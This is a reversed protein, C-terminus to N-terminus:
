NEHVQVKDLMEALDVAPVPPSFLYGQGYRYGLQKLMDCQPTTEIGEAIVMVDLSKGITIIAELLDEGNPAEQAQNVFSKDVKLIRPRLLTFYSLSSYGTGFDDIALAIGIERLRTSIRVASDIDRIAAGETIELVLRGPEFGYTELTETIRKFLQPDHFQRPSLNVTVCPQQDQNTIKRWSAAECVAKRLAFYGLEFILDSKEALPIFVDPSVSGQGPRDWRMLAEFGQIAGTDIDVIPQYHMSIADSDISQRLDQVLEIRRTARNHMDPHFLAYSNKGQRKAEYMATDANRLLDDCGERGICTAVGISATVHITTLSDESVLFPKDFLDNIRAAIEEVEDPGSPGECLYVFEDGGLRCLTDGSRTVHELRQSVEILLADGMQHGLTDNVDKFDDLDILLVAIWANERKTKLLVQDLRDEFLLRNALGTLSDHLAQHSLKAVLSREETIDRLSNVFYQPEGLENRALSKSVEAWVTRGDKHRYRKTYVIRSEEGALIRTAVNESIGRDPSPTFNASFQGVLEGSTYGLIECFSDNVAIMRRNPDTIAMGSVNNLFAHQFRQEIENRANEAEWRTTDDAVRAIVWPKNNEGEYPSLSIDVHLETEDKRLLTFYMGSNVPRYKPIQTFALRERIHADRQSMPVLVEIPKGVLERSSYGSLAEVPSNVYRIVGEDDVLAVGDPLKDLLHEGFLPHGRYYSATKDHEAAILLARNAHDKEFFYGILIGCIGLAILLSWGAWLETATHELLLEQPITVACAEFAILLSGKLGFFNGAYVLPVFLLLTWVFGPAPSLVTEDSLDAFLHGLIAVALIAQALWFRRDSFPPHLLDRGTSKSVPQRNEFSSM